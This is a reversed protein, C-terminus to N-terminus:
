LSSGGNEAAQIAQPVVHNKWVRIYARGVTM